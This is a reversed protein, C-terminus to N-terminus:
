LRASLLPLMVLVAACSPTLRGVRYSSISLSRMRRSQGRGWVGSSNMGGSVLALSRKGRNVNLFVAGMGPHRAPGIFRTPDGDPSEVKIVDAGMDALVQAAYPGLLVTTLDLVRIGALPGKPKKAAGAM